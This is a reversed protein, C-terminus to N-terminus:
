LLSKVLPNKKLSDFKGNANPKESLEAIYQLNEVSFNKALKELAIKKIVMESPGNAPISISVDM